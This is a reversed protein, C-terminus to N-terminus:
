PGVPIEQAVVKLVMGIWFRPVLVKDSVLETPKGIGLVDTYMM